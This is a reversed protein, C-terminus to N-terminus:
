RADGKLPNIIEELYDPIPVGNRYLVDVVGRLAFWLQRNERELAAVRGRRMVVWGGVGGGVLPLLTALVAALGDPIDIM